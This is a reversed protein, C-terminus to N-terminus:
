GMAVPIFSFFLAVLSNIFNHVETSFYYYVNDNGFRVKDDKNKQSKIYSLMQEFCQLIDEVSSINHNNM